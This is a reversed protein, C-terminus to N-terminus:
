RLFAHFSSTNMNDIMKRVYNTTKQDLNIIKKNDFVTMNELDLGRDSLVINIHTSLPYYLEDLLLSILEVRSAGERVQLSNNGNPLTMRKRLRVLPNFSMVNPKSKQNKIQRTRWYRQILLVADWQKRNNQRKIRIDEVIRGMANVKLLSAIITLWAYARSDYQKFEHIESKKLIIEEVKEKWDLSATLAIHQKDSIMTNRRFLAQAIKVDKPLKPELSVNRPSDLEKKKKEKMIQQIKREKVLEILHFAKREDNRYPALLEQEIKLDRRNTVPPKPLVFSIMKMRPSKGNSDHSKSIGINSDRKCLFEIKASEREIQEPTQHSVQLFHNRPSKKLYFPTTISDALKLKMTRPSRPSYSMSKNINITPAQRSELSEWYASLSLNNENVETNNPPFPITVKLNNININTRDM